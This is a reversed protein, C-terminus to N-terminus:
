HLHSITRLISKSFHLKVFLTHSASIRSLNYFVPVPNRTQNCSIRYSLIILVSPHSFRCYAISNFSFSYFEPNVNTQLYYCPRVKLSIVFITSFPHHFVGLCCIKACPRPRRGSAQQSQTKSDAPPLDTQRDTQQSHQTNDLVPRQTPSIM